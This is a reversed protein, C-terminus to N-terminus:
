PKEATLNAVKAAMEKAITANFGIIKERVKGEKDIFLTTPLATVGYNRAVEEPALIVPYPIEMSKVFHRVTEGDGKDVSMGIVEFGNDHYTKYLQVLHPISERCPGCWTAWFDLLVVKGKLGSLTIEKGELTKLAFDPTPASEKGKKACHPLLFAM